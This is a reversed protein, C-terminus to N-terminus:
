LSLTEHSNSMPCKSLYIITNPQNIDIEIGYVSTNMRVTYIPRCSDKPKRLMMTLMTYYYSPVYLIGNSESSRNVYFCLIHDSTFIIRTNCKDYTYCHTVPIPACLVYTGPGCHVSGAVPCCLSKEIRSELGTITVAPHADDPRIRVRRTKEIREPVTCGRGTGADTRQLSLSLNNPVTPDLLLCVYLETLKYKVIQVDYNTCILDSIEYHDCPVDLNHTRKHEAYMLLLVNQTNVCRGCLGGIRNPYLMCVMSTLTHMMATRVYESSSASHEYVPSRVEYYNQYDSVILLPKVMVVIPTTQVYLRTSDSSRDGRVRFQSISCFVLCILILCVLGSRRNCNPRTRRGYVDVPELYCKGKMKSVRDVLYTKDCEQTTNHTYWGSTM